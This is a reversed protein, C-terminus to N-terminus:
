RQTKRRTREQIERAVPACELAPVHRRPRWVCHGARWVGLVHTWRSRASALWRWALPRIWDWITSEVRRTDGCAAGIITTRGRGVPDNKAKCVRVKTCDVEIYTAFPPFPPFKKGLRSTTSSASGVQQEELATTRDNTIQCRGAEIGIAFLPLPCVQQM